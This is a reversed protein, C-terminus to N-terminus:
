IAGFEKLLFYSGYILDTSHSLYCHEPSLENIKARIDGSIYYTPFQYYKLLEFSFEDDVLKKSKMYEFCYQRLEEKTQTNFADEKIGILILHENAASQYSIDAVRHIVKDNMIRWYFLKKKLPQDLQILLHDYDRREHKLQILKERSQIFKIDSVSTLYIFDAKIAADELQLTVEDEISISQIRSNFQFTVNDYKKLREVLANVLMPSGLKPYENKKGVIRFSVAPNENLGKVAKFNLTLLNKALASYSTISNKVSYPLHIKKGIFDASPNIPSIPLDFKKKFYNYVEPQYSWIHCGSEIEFGKPSYDTYWAGGVQHSADLFTIQKQPDEQLILYARLLNIPSTGILAIHSKESM